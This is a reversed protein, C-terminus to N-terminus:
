IIQIQFKVVQSGLQLAFLSSEMRILSWLDELVNLGEEQIAVRRDAPDPGEVDTIGIVDRLFTRMSAQSTMNLNYTNLNQYYKRAPFWHLPM